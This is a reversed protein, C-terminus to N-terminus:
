VQRYIKGGQDGVPRNLDAIAQFTVKYMTEKGRGFPLKIADKQYARYLTSVVYKSSQDKRKSILLVGFKRVPVLGGFAIEEYAQSGAPLGTDTGSAYTANPLLLQLKNCDSEKLQVDMSDAEGTMVADIGLTVQDAGPEEIKAGIDLSTAGESAGAFLYAPALSVCTWVVTSGDATTAGVTAGWTGPVTGNTTGGTTCEQVNGNSDVIMPGPTVVTTAAWAPQTPTGDSGILARKGTAPAAVNLYLWGAGQHVLTPTPTGLAM